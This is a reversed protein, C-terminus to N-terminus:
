QRAAIVLASTVMVREVDTSPTPAIAKPFMDPVELVVIDPLLDRVSLSM